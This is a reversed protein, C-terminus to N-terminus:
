PAVAMDSWHSGVTVLELRRLSRDASMSVYIMGRVPVKSDGTWPQPVSGTSSRGSKSSKASQHSSFDLKNLPSGSAYHSTKIM